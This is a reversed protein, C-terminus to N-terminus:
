ALIESFFVVPTLIRAPGITGRRLMGARRDGSVLFDAQGDLAMALLFEDDPDNLALGAPVPSLRKLAVAHELHNVLTGIRHAPM